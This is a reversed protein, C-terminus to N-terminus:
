FIFNKENIKFDFLSFKIYGILDYKSLLYHLNLQSSFKLKIKPFILVSIKKSKFSLTWEINTSNKFVPNFTFLVSGKKMIIEQNIKIADVKGSFYPFFLIIYKLINDSRIFINKFDIDALVKPQNLTGFIKIKSKFIGNVKKFNTAFFNIFSFPFDYITFESKIDKKDYIDMINLYGFVSMNKLKKITWKSTLNNKILNISVNICDIKEMFIKQNINKELKINNGTLFIKGDSVKEGLIWKLKSKISLKSKFSVLSQNFINFFSKKIDHLFSSFIKKTKISKKYFNCIQNNADYYNISNNKQATVKGGLIQINIAKFFGNWNGTKKNFMGNIMLNIYLGRSKLLLSFNQDDNKSRTQIHLTNIYFSNFYFKKIDILMKELFMNDSNIKSVIKIKKLYVNNWNLNRALIESTMIPFVGNGRFNMKAEIVGKLNPLFYDLDHAYISSNINYKTGLAGNLYLTNKRLLLKVRPIEIYNFNKYYISGLISFKKQMINGNLDIKPISLNYINDHSKGLINMKGILELIERHYRIKNKLNIMAKYIKKKKILFFKVQKLFINKLNGTGKLNIFISPYDPITFINKLSLFYNNIKGKLIAKFSNLKFIYDKKITWFLNRSQLKIFFPYDTSNLLVSGYFQVKCLDQSKLKFIFKNHSNLNAKFSLNISRNYLRPLVVINKMLCLISHNENFFIKGYSKITFFSSAIKLKKINFINNEIQAKLELQFLNNNKYDMLKIENCKLSTLNINLPVFFKKKNSFFKLISYIKKTNNFKKIVNLKKSINNKKFSIKSYSLHATGVHTPSLIINNNILQVGSSINFFFIHSKPLKFFIKDVHINEFIIPYKIFINKELFDSSINKELSVMLNKTEIEKFITSKKFLSRTDLIVHISNATMSIGFVNYKINKLTFDRWNGYIEEVKLGILFRSTFNFIWKFGINSEIFLIFIVFFVSFFILSKSLCRQYISM